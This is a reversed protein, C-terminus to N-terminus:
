FTNSSQYRIALIGVILSFTVLLCYMVLYKIKEGWQDKPIFISKDIYRFTWWMAYTLSSFSPILDAFLVFVLYNWDPYSVGENYIMNKPWVFLKAYQM